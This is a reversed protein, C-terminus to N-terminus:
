LVSFLKDAAIGGNIIEVIIAPIILFGPLGFSEMWEITGDYSGIKFFGNLLFLASILIRAILDLINTM